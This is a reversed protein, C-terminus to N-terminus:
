KLERVFAAALKAIGEFDGAEIMKQNVLSGGVGVCCVGAKFFSAINELNVGGVAALPIYPLPGRVAKIFATGLNDAPFVKVIDAGARYCNEIETPTMAGPMVTMELAKAERIVEADFTPTIIYEAGAEKAARVQEKRLVTGAGVLVGKEGLRECVLRIKDTTFSVERTQDFPIEILRIGGDRIAEATKLTTEGDLGRLIVIIKEQAIREFVTM